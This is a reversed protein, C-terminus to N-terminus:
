AFSYIVTGDDMRRPTGPTSGAEAAMAAAGKAAEEAAERKARRYACEGEQGEGDEAGGKVRAYGLPPSAWFTVDADPKGLFAKARRVAEKLDSAMEWHLANPGRPDEAGVIFVKGVKDM